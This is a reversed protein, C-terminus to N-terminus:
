QEIPDKERDVSEQEAQAETDGDGTGEKKRKLKRKTKRLKAMKKTREADWKQEVVSSGPNALLDLQLYQTLWSGSQSSCTEVRERM